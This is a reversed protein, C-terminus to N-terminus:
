RRSVTKTVDAVMTVPTRTARTASDNWGVTL